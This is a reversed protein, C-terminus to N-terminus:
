KKRKLAKCFSVLFLGTAVRFLNLLLLNKSFSLPVICAGCALAGIVVTIKAGFKELLFPTFISGIFIGIFTAAELFGLESDTMGIFRKYIEKLQEAIPLIGMDINVFSHTMCLVFFFLYAGSPKM